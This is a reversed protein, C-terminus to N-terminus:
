AKPKQFVVMKLGVRWAPAIRLSLIRKAGSFCMRHRHTFFSTGKARSRGPGTARLVGIQSLTPGIRRVGSEM